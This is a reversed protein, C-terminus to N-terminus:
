LCTYVYKIEKTCIVNGRKEKINELVEKSWKM